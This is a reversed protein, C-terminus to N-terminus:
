VYNYNLKSKYTRGIVKEIIATGNRINGGEQLVEDLAHAYLNVADYLYAAYIPVQSCCSWPTFCLLGSRLVFTNSRKWSFSINLM